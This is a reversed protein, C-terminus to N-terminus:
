PHRHLSSKKQARHDQDCRQRQRRARGRLAAIHRREGLPRDLPSEVNRRGRHDDCRGAFFGRWQEDVSKPDAQYRAYLDEIYAANGGYLFGTQALAENIDQRAM